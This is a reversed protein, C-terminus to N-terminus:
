RAKSFYRLSLSDGAIEPHFIAIYEALLREPHFAIDNFLTHTQTDCVYINGEKWPRFYAYKPNERQLSSLSPESGFTSIIWFDADRADALVREVSFSLSGTSSDESWPTKAGADHIMKAMYSKGGPVFWTGQYETGTLVTPRGQALAARCQLDSYNEVVGRFIKEALEDKGYLKGLLLIWEARGIPSTEMYDTMPITIINKPLNPLSSDELPSNLVIEPRAVIICEAVPSSSAGVDSIRKARLLSSITDNEPFFAGDAIAVLANLANLETLASTHVSSFVASREVPTRIIKIDTPIDKPVTSDRPVLMYRGLPARKNTWPNAIEVFTAGGEPMGVMTLGNAYMTLTDGGEVSFIEAGEGSSICGTLAFCGALTGVVWGYFRGFRM